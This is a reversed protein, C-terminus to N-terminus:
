KQAQGPTPLSKLLAPPLRFANLSNLSARIAPIEAKPFGGKDLLEQTGLHTAPPLMYVRDPLFTDIEFAEHAMKELQKETAKPFQHTLVASTRPFGVTGIHCALCSGPTNHIFEKPRQIIKGDAEFDLRNTFSLGSPAKGVHFRNFVIWNTRHNQYQDFGSTFHMRVEELETKLKGQEWKVHWAECLDVQVKKGDYEQVFRKAIRATGPFGDDPPREDERTFGAFYRYVVGTKLPTEMNEPATQVEFIKGDAEARYLDGLYRRSTPDVIKFYQEQDAKLTPAILGDPELPASLRNALDNLVDRHPTLSLSKEKRQSTFMDAAPKQPSQTFSAFFGGVALLFAGGIAVQRRNGSFMVPVPAPSGLRSLKM